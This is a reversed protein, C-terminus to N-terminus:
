VSSCPFPLVRFILALAISHAPFAPLAPRFLPRQPHCTTAECGDYDESPFGQDACVVRLPLVRSADPFRQRGLGGGQSHCWPDGATVPQRRLLPWIPGRRPHHQLGRHQSSATFPLKPTSLPAHYGASGRGRSVECASLTRFGQVVQAPWAWTRGRERRERSHGGGMPMSHHALLRRRRCAAQRCATGM